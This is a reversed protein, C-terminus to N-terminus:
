GGWGEAMRPLRPWNHPEARFAAEAASEVAALRAELDIAFSSTIELRPDEFVNTRRRWRWDAVTKDRNRLLVAIEPQFLQVIATLWRNLLASPMDGGVQFRDLMRIVDDASYWTEGTVWRNTTFLRVPEGHRDIAIAVLHVVEDRGGRKVPASQPPLPANAVAIEPLLLPTIGAPLGEARLFLHFHGHEDPDGGGSLAVPAHSHYFYQAHSEPDYVEGEPYRRWPAIETARGIVLDLITAGERALANHCAHLTAAAAGQCERLRM